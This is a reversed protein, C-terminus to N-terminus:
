LIFFQQDTNLSIVVVIAISFATKVDIIFSTYCIWFCQNNHSAVHLYHLIILILASRKDIQKMTVIACSVHHQVSCCASFKLSCLLSSHRQFLFDFHYSCLFTGSLNFVSLTKVWHALVSDIIQMTFITNLLRLIHNFSDFAFSMSLNWLHHIMLASWTIKEVEMMNETKFVNFSLASTHCSLVFTMKCNCLFVCDSLAQHKRHLFQICCFTSDM